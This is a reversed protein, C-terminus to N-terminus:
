GASSPIPKRASLVMSYIQVGNGADARASRRVTFDAFGAERALDLYEGEPLAGYVCSGWNAPNAVLDLPFAGETVIDSVELRGGPRLVRFAERFTVGKDPTLNIVCNSIVLDVTEDEVPLRDAAGQRFEVQALGAKAAAKRARELMAPTPDVGIVQGESGVKRAALMSDLGGGSGIDLVTEGPQIGAMALPNGCGLSFDAAESPIGAVDAKAYIFSDPNESLLSDVSILDSTCCSGGTSGDALAPSCCSAAAATQGEAMTGADGCGCGSEAAQRYHDQVAEGVGSVPRTGVAVFINIRAERGRSDTLGADDSQACCQEGTCDVFVNVLGAEKLWLRLDDREFGQWEDAMEEKLWGYPHADMDSIVLRGGPKLVRGMERIASLPDPCHHLYMNAFVADQSGDALPLSLGDALHFAVNDHEALNQRAVALMEPSGDIAHVQRVIAALGASFFGTGAGIDAVTMEPRLYAKAIAAQRVQPGFYGTRLADWESAHASFYRSSASTMSSSPTEM